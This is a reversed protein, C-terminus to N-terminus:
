VNKKGVGRVKELLKIFTNFFVGKSFHKDYYKRANLGYIKHLDKREVFASVSNALAKYDEADCCIGCNAEEIVMHTEGDIAGIIPKGAAMYSIVKYPLTYSIAKNAKLTVLFADALSYFHQMDSILRQGYFVVNNLELDKAILKCKELASGNGVIHWKIDKRERLINAANIMTEVSQMEGINGAFVLNICGDDSEKAKINEFLSDAYIPLYILEDNIGIVDNFYTKFMKSSIAIRDANKYIWKSIALLPKYVLSKDKIGVAAVSEPWLDFCYLLINIGSIKKLLIAPIAMTVPSLQYVLIVDFDKKLFLARLSASVAYSIYNLALRLKGSGRGILPVRIVEVGNIYEHRKRFWRYEKKIIGSPYNPLGTLVIVKHGMSALEFCIDNVKFQEPYFYQCLVLIKM